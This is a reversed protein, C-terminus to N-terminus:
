RLRRGCDTPVGEGNRHEVLRHRVGRRRRTRAASLRRHLDPIAPLWDRGMLNLFLARNFEARGEPEWTLPPPADGTQFAEVLATLSRGHRVMDISRYGAYRIDDPDAFVPVHEAPLSYRRELPEVRPDDVALLGSAAHHELWERIYRENTGTREALEASKAPGGELLARYLGLREGLYITYLELTRLESEFLRHALARSRDQGM